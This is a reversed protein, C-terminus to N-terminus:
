LHRPCARRTSLRQLQDRTAGSGHRPSRRRRAPPARRTSSTWGGRRCCGARSCRGGINDWAVSVAVLLIPAGSTSGTWRGPLWLRCTGDSGRTAASLLPGLTSLWLLGWLRTDSAAALLGARRSSPGRRAQRSAHRIPLRASAAGEAFASDVARAQHLAPKVPVPHCVRVAILCVVDRGTPSAPVVVWGAPPSLFPPPRFAVEPIRDALSGTPSGATARATPPTSGACTAQLHASLKRCAVADQQPEQSHLGPPDAPRRRALPLRRHRGHGASSPPRM